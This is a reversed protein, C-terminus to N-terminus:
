RRSAPRCPRRGRSRSSRLPRLWPFAAIAADLRALRDRQEPWVCARLWECDDKRRVDLPRPDFGSRLRVDLERSVVLAEGSSRRWSVDVRDAVLNLGASAGVDFLMLPRARGGAGAITAPWLWTVSRTLENTQIRRSRLTIWFAIRERGVAAELARATVAREDPADAAIAQFLPHSPGEARADARLAALFLLPREYPGEFTRKQWVREFGALLDRGAHGALLVDLEQLIRRYSPSASGMLVLQQAIDERIGETGSRRAFRDTGAPSVSGTSVPRRSPETAATPAVSAKPAPTAVSSSDSLPLDRLAQQLTRADAFREEKERGMCRRVIAGLEAPLEPRHERPDPPAATLRASAIAYSSPGTWAQRGTLMEFLVAGFAYIDARADVDPSAVVQEPAM